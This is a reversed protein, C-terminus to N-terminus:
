EAADVPLEEVTHSTILLPPECAAAGPNEVLRVTHREHVRAGSAVDTGRLEFTLVAEDKGLAPNHRLTHAVWGAVAQDDDSDTQSRPPYVFVPSKDPGSIREYFGIEGSPASSALVDELNVDVTMGMAEVFRAADEDSELALGLTLRGPKTDPRQVGPAYWEAIDSDRESESNVYAVYQVGFLAAGFGRTATQMNAGWEDFVSPAALIMILLYSGFALVACGVASVIVIIVWKCTRASAM